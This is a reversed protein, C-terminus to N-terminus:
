PNFLSFILSAIFNAKSLSFETSLSKLIEIMLDKPLSGLKSILPGVLSLPAGFPRIM